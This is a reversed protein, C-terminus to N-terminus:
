DRRTEPFKIEKILKGFHSEPPTERNHETDCSVAFAVNEPPEEEQHARTLDRGHVTPAASEMELSSASDSGSLAGDSKFLCWGREGDPRRGRTRGADEALHRLDALDGAVCDSIVEPTAVVALIKAKLSSSCATCSAGFLDSVIGNVHQIV